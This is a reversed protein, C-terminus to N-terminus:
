RKFGKTKQQKYERNNELKVQEQKKLSARKQEQEVVRASQKKIDDPSGNKISNQYDFSEKVDRDYNMKKDFKKECNNFFSSRDFGSKVTGASKGGRRHNTMPSLKKKNNIDKRSVIIHAHIQGEKEGKRTHHIKAYYEIDTAKLGKNFNDAYGPIVEKRIYDQLAASQEIQTKGMAAVEKTSPSITIMYFKADKKCLKAKNNDLKFIVEKASVNDKSQNFFQEQECGEQIRDLDEHQLYSVVGTSSGNNAYAGAGGGQIKVNM